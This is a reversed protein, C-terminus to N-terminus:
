IKDYITNKTLYTPVAFTKISPNQNKLQTANNVVSAPDAWEGDSIVILYNLQCAAGSIIPSTYGASGAFYSKALNLANNLYTGGEAIVGDVNTYITKAGSSSIPVRIRLGGNSTAYPWGWEMLGFNAGATLETNSVIKKIVSKAVDMRNGGAFTAVTTLSSNLKYIKNQWFDAVYINDSSDKGIGRPQLFPTSSSYSGYKASYVYSSTFKQIRYNNYDTAYINDGSDFVADWSYYFRGNSTQGGTSAISTYAGTILGASLNYVLVQQGGAYSDVCSVLLKTGSNNVDLGVPYACPTAGGTNYIQVSGATGSASKNYVRLQTGSNTYLYNGSVAIGRVNYQSSSLSLRRKFNGFLDKVDIKDYGSNAVFVESGSIVIQYPNLFQNDGEGCSGFTRLFTGSSNYVVVRCRFYELAYINGSSDVAVDIPYELSSASSSNLAWNMSGSNDLMIMINAPIDSTGTGPPPSKSNVNKTFVLLVILLLIKAIKEM